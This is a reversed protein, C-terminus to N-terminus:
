RGAMLRAMPVPKMSSVYSAGPPRPSARVSNFWGAGLNLCVGAWVMRALCDQVQKRPYKIEAVITDIHLSKEAENLLTLIARRVLDDDTMTM